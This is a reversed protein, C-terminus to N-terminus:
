KLINRLKNLEHSTIERWHGMPLNGLSLNGLSVRTLDKIQYRFLALMRKIQRKRGEHITIRIKKNKLAEIKCPSTM